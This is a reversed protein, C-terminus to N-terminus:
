VVLLITLPLNNPLHLRKVSFLNSQISLTNSLEKPQVCEQTIFNILYSPFIFTQQPLTCVIRLGVHRQIIGCIKFFQLPKFIQFQFHEHIPGINVDEMFVLYDAVM